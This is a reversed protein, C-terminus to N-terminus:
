KIIKAWLDIFNKFSLQQARLQLLEPSLKELDLHTTKLNNSLTRRPFLFCLKLFKWFEEEHEIKVVEKKPKFYLLRSHVKPPPDFAKPEIKEMLEFDFHHQLFMSTPSYKKGRTAVIKQAVEEQIMVVGEEFLDKHKQILFMIPFTIQYPLNALIVWPKHKEFESFDEDLINQEHLKFRKHTITRKLVAAWEPDIEYGWLQKCKTQNLISITLFGEGCGIELVSTEPTIKVKSIMNDVVSQKRLFHQGFKKKKRPKMVHIIDYFHAKPILSLKKNTLILAYNVCLFSININFFIFIRQFKPPTM